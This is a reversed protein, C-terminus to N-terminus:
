PNKLIIFIGLVVEKPLSTFSPNWPMRKRCTFSGKARSLIHTFAFDPVMKPRGDLKIGQEQIDSCNCSQSSKLCIFNSVIQFQGVLSFYAPGSFLM